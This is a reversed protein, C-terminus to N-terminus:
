VGAVVGQLATTLNDASTKLRTVAAAANPDGGASSADAIAKAIAPPAQTALNDLTDSVANIDDSIAMLRNRFPLFWFHRSLRYVRKGLVLLNRREAEISPGIDDVDV